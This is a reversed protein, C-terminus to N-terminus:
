NDNKAKRLNADNTKRSVACSQLKSWHLTSVALLASVELFHNQGLYPGLLGLDRGFPPKGANEEKILFITNLQYKIM